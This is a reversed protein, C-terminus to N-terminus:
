FEVDGFLVHLTGAIDDFGNEHSVWKSIVSEFTTNKRYQLPENLNFFKSSNVEPIADKATVERVRIIAGWSHLSMARKGTEIFNFTDNIFRRHLDTINPNNEQLRIWELFNDTGFAFLANCVIKERVEFSTTTIIGGVLQKWINEVNQNSIVFRLEQPEKNYSANRVADKISDGKTQVPIGIDFGQFGRPYTVVRKSM